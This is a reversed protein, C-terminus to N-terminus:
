LKTKKKTKVANMLVPLAEYFCYHSALIEFSVQESQGLQSFEHNRQEEGMELGARGATESVLVVGQDTNNQYCSGTKKESEGSERIM